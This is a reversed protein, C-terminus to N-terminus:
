TYADEGLITAIAGLTTLQAKIVEESELSCVAEWDARETAARLAQLTEGIRETRPLLVQM